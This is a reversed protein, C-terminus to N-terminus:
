CMYCFERVNDHECKDVTETAEVFDHCGCYKCGVPAMNEYGDFHRRYSHGCKCVRSDGYRPNYAREITTIELYAPEEIPAFIAINECGQTAENAERLLVLFEEDPMALLKACVDKLEQEQITRQESFSM